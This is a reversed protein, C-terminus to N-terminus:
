DIKKYNYEVPYDAFDQRWTDVVDHLKNKYAADNTYFRVKTGDEVISGIYYNNFPDKVIIGEKFTYLGRVGGEIVLTEELGYTDRTEGFIQMNEVFLDYDEGLLKQIDTDSKADIINFSSLTSKPTNAAVTHNKYEGEFYTGMGGIEYCGQTEGVTISDANLTLDLRCNFENSVLEATNGTVTAKGEIGSTNGGSLVNLVLDFTSGDINSIVLTGPNSISTRTWEGNWKEAAAKEKAEKDKRKQEAEKFNKITFLIDMKHEKGDVKQLITITTKDKAPFEEAKVTVGKKTKKIIVVGDASSSVKVKDMDAPKNNYKEDLIDHEIFEINFNKSEGSNMEQKHIPVFGNMFQCTDTNQEQGFEKEKLIWKLLTEDFVNVIISGQIFLKEEIKACAYKGDKSNEGAAAVGEAKAGAFAEFGGGVVGFGTLLVDFAPGVKGEAKGRGQFGFDFDASPKFIPTVGDKDYIFGSTENYDMYLIVELGGEVSYDFKALLNVELLLGTAGIPIRVEGVEIKEGKLDAIVELLQKDENLEKGLAKIKFENEVKSETVIKLRELELLGDKKIEPKIVPSILKMTGDLALKNKKSAPNLPYNTFKVQMGEDYKVQVTPLPYDFEVKEKANASASAVMPGQEVSALSEVTVGELDENIIFNEATIPYTKNIDLKDYIEVFEPEKVDAVLNGGKTGIKTIKLAQGDPYEETPIIIIDDVVVKVDKNIRVQNVGTVEAQDQTLKKVDPNLVATEVEDRVTIFQMKYNKSVNEGTVKKIDNTLNLEYKAGKIYGGDPPNVLLKNGNDVLEYTVAVKQNEDDLVYVNDSNLSQENLAPEFTYEFVKDTPVDTQVDAVDEMNITETRAIKEDKNVTATTSKTKGVKSYVFYGASGFLMLTLFAIIIKRM